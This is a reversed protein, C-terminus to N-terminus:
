GCVRLRYRLTKVTRRGRLLKVTVRPRSGRRLKRASLKVAFPGKRDVRTRGRVTVAVRSVRPRKTGRAGGVLVRVSSVKGRTVCGNRALVTAFGTKGVAANAKVASKSAFPTKSASARASGSGATGGATSFPVYFVPSGDVDIFDKSWAIAGRDKGVGMSLNRIDEGRAIEFPVSYVGGGAKQSYALLLSDPGFFNSAVWAVYTRSDRGPAITHQIDAGGGGFANTAYEGLVTPKGLLGNGGIQGVVPRDEKDAYIVRAFFEGSSTNFPAKSLIASGGQVLQRTPFWEVETNWHDFFAPNVAGDSPHRGVAYTIEVNNDFVAIPRLGFAATKKDRVTTISANALHQNELVLGDAAKEADDGGYPFGKHIFGERNGTFDTGIAHVSFVPNTNGPGDVSLTADQSASGFGLDVPAAGSTVNWSFLRDSSISRSQVVYVRDGDTAQAAYVYTPSASDTAGAGQLRTRTQCSFKFKVIPCYIPDSTVPDQWTVHVNDDRSVAVFPRQGKEELKAAIPAAQAGSAGVLIGAAVTIAVGARKLKTATIV